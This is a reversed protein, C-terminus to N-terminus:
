FELQVGFRLLRGSAVDLANLWQPGYQLNMSTIPSGNFVNYIDFNGTAATRGIRVRRSFRLDLLSMREEFRTNPEILAIESTARAGASPNRGLSRAIEAGSAVYTAMIPIGPLSQFTASTQLDWPLPYAGHVKLLLDQSWSLTSRCFRLATVPRANRNVTDTVILGAAPNDVAAGCDDAVTNGMALGGAIMGGQGFRSNVTLDVGNFVKTRRGGALSQLENVQGFKTPRVDYL